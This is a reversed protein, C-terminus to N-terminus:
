IWGIQMLEKLSNKIEEGKLRKVIELSFQMASGAASGTIIDGDVVVPKSIFDAGILENEFGPFCTAKKGKLLGAHGLVIPAACIAAVLGGNSSVTKIIQLLTGNKKLNESGPMGGPLVVADFKNHKVSEIGTDAIVIIDHSGTVPNEQLYASTVKIDARRLVDIITVAEIEEFGEALPVLVNM